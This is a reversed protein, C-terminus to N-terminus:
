GTRPTAHAHAQGPEVKQCTAPMKTWSDHTKEVVPPPHASGPVQVRIVSNSHKKEAQKADSELSPESDQKGM